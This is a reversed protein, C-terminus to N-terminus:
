GGHDSLPQWSGNSPVERLPDPAELARELATLNEEHVALTARLRSTRQEDAQRAGELAAGHRRLEVELLDVRHEVRVHERAAAELRQVTHRLEDVVGAGARLEEAMAGVRRELEHVRQWSRRQPPAPERDLHTGAPPDAAGHAERGARRRFVMVLMLASLLAVTSLGVQAASPLPAFLSAGALVLCSVVLFRGFRHM